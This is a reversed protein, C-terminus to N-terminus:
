EANPLLRRLSRRRLVVSDQIVIDIAAHPTHDDEAARRACPAHGVASELGAVQRPRLMLLPLNVLPYCQRLGILGLQQVRRVVHRRADEDSRPSM